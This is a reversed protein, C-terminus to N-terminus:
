LDANTATFYLGNESFKPQELYEVCHVCVVEGIKSAETIFAMSCTKSVQLDTLWFLDVDKWEWWINKVM